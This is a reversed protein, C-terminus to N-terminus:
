QVSSIYTTIATLEEDTPPADCQAPSYFAAHMIESEETKGEGSLIAKAKKFLEDQPKGALKPVVKSVPAKAEAGHCNICGHYEFLTKGDTEAVAPGIALCGAWIVSILATKM